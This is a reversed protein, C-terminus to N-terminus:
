VCIRQDNKMKEIARMARDLLTKYHEVKAQLQDNEMQLQFFRTQLDTDEGPRPSEDDNKMSEETTSEQGVVEIGTDAEPKATASEVNIGATKERLMPMVVYRYNGDGIEFLVPDNDVTMYIDIATEADLVRLYDRMFSVDLIFEATGNFTVPIAAKSQGSEKARSELTLSGRRFTFLVEPESDTTVM